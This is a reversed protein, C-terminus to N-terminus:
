QSTSDLFLFKNTWDPPPEDKLRFHLKANQNLGNYKSPDGIVKELWVTLSKAGGLIYLVVSSGVGGGTATTLDKNTYGLWTSYQCTSDTTKGLTDIVLPTVTDGPAVWPVFIKVWQTPDNTRFTTTLLVRRNDGRGVISDVAFSYTKVTDIADPALIYSTHGSTDTVPIYKDWYTAERINWYVKNLIYVYVVTDTASIHHQSLYVVAARKETYGWPNEPITIFSKPQTLLTSPLILLLLM